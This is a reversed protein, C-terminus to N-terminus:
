SRLNTSPQHDGMISGPIVAPPGLAMGELILYAKPAAGFHEVLARMGRLDGLGEECTNAVFWVDGPLQNGRERLRWLVGFLGAVGMSNDGIGPGYIRDEARRIALDTEAPFVTDMHASIILPNGPEKGKLRALVNGASDTQIDTLAEAAFMKRIFQARENEAFSPAPIQQIQIALNLLRNIM